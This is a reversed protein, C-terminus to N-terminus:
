TQPGPHPAFLRAYDYAYDTRYGHIGWGLWKYAHQMYWEITNGKRLMFPEVRKWQYETFLYGLQCETTSPNCSNLKGFRGLGDYRSTTTWQILGYGGRHCHEYPIRAGGECINAVFRSEQKINGMLAALAYRDEIGKDQFAELAMKEQVTCDPCTIAYVKTPIPTGEGEDVNVTETLATEETKTEKTEEVQEEAAIEELSKPLEASSPACGAISLATVAAISRTFNM